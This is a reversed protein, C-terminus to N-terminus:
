FYQIWYSQGPILGSIGQSMTTSGQIFAMQQGDTVPTGGNHFPGDARNTGSGGTWGNIPGYHPWTENYNEEFSPNAVLGARAATAALLCILGVLSVARNKM